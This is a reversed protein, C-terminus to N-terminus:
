KQALKKLEKKSLEKQLIEKPVEPAKSPKKDGIKPEEDGYYFNTNVYNYILADLSEKFNEPRKISFADKKLYFVRVSFRYTKDDENYKVAQALPTQPYVVDGPTVKVTGKAFGIYEALSGDEHQITMSNTSSKFSHKTGPTVDYKDVIKVVIGKRISLLDTPVKTRFSFSKYADPTKEGTLTASILGPKGIIYETNPPIPLTYVFNTDIRNNPYGLFYRVTYTSFTISVSNDSPKIKAITGQKNNIYGFIEDNCSCNKLDNLKVMAYYNGYGENIYNFDISKDNNRASSTTIEKQASVSLGIALFPIIYFYKIM